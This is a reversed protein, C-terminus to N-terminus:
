TNKHELEQIKKIYWNKIHQEGSIGFINDVDLVSIIPKKDKNLIELYEHDSSHSVETFFNHCQSLYSTLDSMNMDRLDCEENNIKVIWQSM